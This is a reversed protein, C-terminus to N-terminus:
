CSERTVDLNNLAKKMKFDEENLMRVLTPIASKRYRETHIQNVFFNETKRSDLFYNNKRPPHM